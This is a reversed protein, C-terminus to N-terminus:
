VKPCSRMLSVGHFSYIDQRRQQKGHHQYDRREPLLRQRQLAPALVHGLVLRRRLPYGLGVRHLVPGHGTLGIPLRYFEVLPPAIHPRPVLRGPRNMDVLTLYLIAMDLAVMLQVVAVDVITTVDPAVVQDDVIVVVIDDHWRIPATDIVVHHHNTGIAVPIPAIATIVVVVIGPLPQGEGGNGQLDEVVDILLLLPLVLSGLDLRGRCGQVIGDGPTITVGGARHSRHPFPGAATAAVAAFELLGDRHPALLLIGETGSALAQRSRPSRKPNFALLHSPRQSGIQWAAPFQSHTLFRPPM